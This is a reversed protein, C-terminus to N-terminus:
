SNKEMWLIDKVPARIQAKGGSTKLLLYNCKTCKIKLSSKGFIIRGLRCRPCSIRLFRSQNEM